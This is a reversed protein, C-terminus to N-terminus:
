RNIKKSTTESGVIGHRLNLQRKRERQDKETLAQRQRRNEEALFIESSKKQNNRMSWFILFGIFVAGFIIFAMRWNKKV